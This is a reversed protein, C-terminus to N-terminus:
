ALRCRRCRVQVCIINNKGAGHTCEYVHIYLRVRKRSPLTSFTVAISFHLILAPRSYLIYIHTHVYNPPASLHRAHTTFTPLPTSQDTSRPPYYFIFFTMGDSEGTGSDYIMESPGPRTCAREYMIRIINYKICKKWM